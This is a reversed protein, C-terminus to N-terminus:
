LRVRKHSALLREFGLPAVTVSDRHEYWYAVLTLVAQRLDAPVDAAAGYGATYDVTLAGTVPEALLVSDGQLVAGEPAEILAQVPGVPLPVLRGAAFPVALRWTQTVLAVGALAEVHLRAAAILAEILADEDSGDVRAFAKAAGLSVPEEGPGAILYSTM